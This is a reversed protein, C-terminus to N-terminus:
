VGARVWRPPRTCDRLRHAEEEQRHDDGAHGGVGERLEEGALPPVRRGGLSERAGGVATPLRRERQECELRIGTGRLM